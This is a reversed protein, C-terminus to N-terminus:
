HKESSPAPGKTITEKFQWGAYILILAGSVIASSNMIGLNIELAPSLMESSSRTTEIGTLIMLIGFGIILSLNLLAIVSKIRPFLRGISTPMAFHANRKVAVAAGIMTIWVLGFTGVEEAWYIAQGVLYRTIVSLFM